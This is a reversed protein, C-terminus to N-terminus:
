LWLTLTAVLLNPWPSSRYSYLCTKSSAKPCKDDDSLSAMKRETEPILFAILLGLSNRFIFDIETYRLLSITANFCIAFM